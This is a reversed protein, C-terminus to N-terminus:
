FYWRMNKFYISNFCQTISNLLLSVNLIYASHVFVCSIDTRQPVPCADRSYLYRIRNLVHIFQTPHINRKATKAVDLLSFEQDLANGLNIELVVTCHCNMLANKPSSSQPQLPPAGLLRASRRCILLGLRCGHTGREPILAPLLCYWPGNWNRRWALSQQPGEWKPQTGTTDHSPSGCGKFWRRMPIGRIRLNFILVAVQQPYTYALNGVPYHRACRHRACRIIKALQPLHTWGCLFPLFDHRINAVLFTFTCAGMFTIDRGLFIQCRAVLFYGFSRVYILTM